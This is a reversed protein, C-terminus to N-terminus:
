SEACGFLYILFFVFFDEQQSYPVTLVNEWNNIKGQPTFEALIVGRAKGM